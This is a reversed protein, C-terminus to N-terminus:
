IGFGRERGHISITSHQGEMEVDDIDKIEDERSNRLLPSVLEIIQKEIVFKIGTCDNDAGPTPKGLKFKEPLIPITEITCRNVSYDSALSLPVDFERLV